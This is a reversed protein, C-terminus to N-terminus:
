ALSGGLFGQVGLSPDAEKSSLVDYMIAPFILYQVYSGVSLVVVLKSRKEGLSQM